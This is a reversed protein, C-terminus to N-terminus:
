AIPPEELIAWSRSHTLLQQWYLLIVTWVLSLIVEMNYVCYFKWLTFYAERVHDSGIGREKSPLESFVGMFV